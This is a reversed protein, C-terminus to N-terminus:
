DEVEVSTKIYSKGRYDDLNVNKLEQIRGYSVRGKTLTNKVCVGYGRALANDDSLEALRQKSREQKKKLAKIQKEYKLFEAANRRWSASKMQVGDRETMPPAEDNALFEVFEGEKVILDHIMAESPRIVQIELDDPDLEEPNDVYPGSIYFCRDARTVLLQHQMQYQHLEPIAGKAKVMAHVEKNNLKIEMITDGQINIGDVSAHMFHYENSRINAPEFIDGVRSEAKVRLIPEFRHGLFFAFKEQDPDIRGTRELWLGYPTTYDSVGMIIGAESSGISNDRWDLWQKSNQDM